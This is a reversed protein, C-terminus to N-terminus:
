FPGQAPSHLARQFRYPRQDCLAAALHKQGTVVRPADGRNPSALLSATLEGLCGLQPDLVASRDRCFRRHRNGGDSIMGKLAIRGGGPNLTPAQQHGPLVPAGPVGAQKMSPTLGFLRKGRCALQVRVKRRDPGVRVCGSQAYAEPQQM